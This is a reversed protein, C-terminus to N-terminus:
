VEPDQDDEMSEAEGQFEPEVVSEGETEQHSPDQAPNGNTMGMTEICFGMQM